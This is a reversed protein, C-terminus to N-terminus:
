PRRILLTTRDQFRLCFRSYFQAVAAELPNPLKNLATFAPMASLVSFQTEGRCVQRCNPPDQLPDGELPNSAVSRTRMGIGANEATGAVQEGYGQRLRIM